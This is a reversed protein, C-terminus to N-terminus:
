HAPSMASMLSGSYKFSNKTQELCAQKQEDTWTAAMEDVNKLVAAGMAKVDGDWKYFDLTHSDLLLQAMKQGIMRGGATHAFYHNYFHCMFGPIDGAAILERLLASYAAGNQCDEAGITVGEVDEYRGDTLWALDRELPKSRELGTDRFAALEPTNNVLDEFCEYVVKSEALFQLYQQRTPKWKTFPTQAKQEGEKAQDRTHLKMAYSRLEDKVFSPKPAEGSGTESPATSISAMRM